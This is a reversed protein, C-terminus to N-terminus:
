TYGTLPINVLQHYVSSILVLDFYGNKYIIFLIGQFICSINQQTDSKHIISQCVVKM